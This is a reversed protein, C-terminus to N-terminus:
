LKGQKYKVVIKELLADEGLSDYKIKLNEHFLLGIGYWFTAPLKGKYTKILEYASQDTERAILKLLLKGQSFSMNRVDKEFQGFLEKETKKILQKRLHVDSISALKINLSDIVQKTKAAYPYVKKFNRITRYNDILFRRDDDRRRKDTLIQEKINQNEQIENKVISDDIAPTQVAELLKQIAQAVVTDANETLPIEGLDQTKNETETAELLQETVDAEKTIEEVLKKSEEIKQQNEPPLPIEKDQELQIEFENDENDKSFLQKNLNISLVVVFIVHLAISVFAAILNYRQEKFFNM